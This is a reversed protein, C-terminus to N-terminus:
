RFILVLVLSQTVDPASSGIRAGMAESGPWIGSQLRESLTPGYSDEARTRTGLVGVAVADGAVHIAHSAVSYTAPNPFTWVGLLEEAM